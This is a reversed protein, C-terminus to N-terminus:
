KGAHHRSSVVVRPIGALDNRIEHVIFGRSAAAKRVEDSQGFGIELIVLADGAADFIREVADFGGQVDSIDPNLLLVYDGRTVALARNVGAAFGVNESNSIVRM